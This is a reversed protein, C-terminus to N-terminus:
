IVVVAALLVHMFGSFASSFNFLISLAKLSFKKEEEGFITKSWCM